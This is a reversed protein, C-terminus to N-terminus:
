DTTDKEQRFEAPAFPHPASPGSAGVTEGADQMTKGKIDGMVDLDMMIDALRRTAKDLREIAQRIARHNGGSLSAKLEDKAAEIAQIEDSSLKQWADKKSAKEVASLITDAENKAEIVQRAAIDDEAHDFSDLIMSEVQEDTLGYTPKVEIEPSRAATKPL